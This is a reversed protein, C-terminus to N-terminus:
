VLDGNETGEGQRAEVSDGDDQEGGKEKAAPPCGDELEEEECEAEEALVKAELIALLDAKRLTSLGTVGRLTLEARLSKKTWCKPGSRRIAKGFHDSINNQKHWWCLHIEAMEGLVNEIARIRGRDGDVLWITRRTLLSPNLQVLYRLESEFTGLDEHELLTTMEVKVEHGVTTSSIFSVYKMGTRSDVINSTVDALFVVPMDGDTSALEPLMFHVAKMRSDGSGDISYVKFLVGREEFDEFMVRLSEAPTVSSRHRKLGEDAILVRYSAAPFEFNAARLTGQITAIVQRKLVGADDEYCKRAALILQEQMGPHMAKLKQAFLQRSANAVDAPKPNCKQAHNLNFDLVGSPYYTWRGACGCKESMVAKEAINKPTTPFGNRSCRNEYRREGKFPGRTYKRTGNYSYARGDCDLLRANVSDIFQEKGATDQFLRRLSHETDVPFVYNKYPSNTM